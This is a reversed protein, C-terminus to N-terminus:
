PLLSKCAVRLIIMMQVASLLRKVQSASEQPILLLLSIKIM